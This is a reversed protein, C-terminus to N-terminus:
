LGAKLGAIVANSFGQREMENLGKITLGRPTTVKDIEAEAHAGAQKLLSAAGAVTGAVIQQAVDARFGMEVAGETAARIYRLAYAIGCSALTTGASLMKEEVEFVSGMAGLVEKVLCAQREKAGLTSLFTVSLLNKIAINPISMMVQLRPKDENKVYKKLRGSDVGAAVSVLIQEKKGLVGQIEDLVGEVLWPKVALFLVDAAKAVARNDVFTRMGLDKFVQMKSETRSSIWINQNSIREVKALGLAISGGMAGAGIIGISIKSIDTEM